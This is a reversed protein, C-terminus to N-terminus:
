THAIFVHVNHDSILGSIFSASFLMSLESRGFAGSILWPDKQGAIWDHLFDHPHLNLRLLSLNSFHQDGLEKILSEEPFPEQDNVALYTLTAPTACLEPFLYAFQKIAFISAPSGDYTLILSGPLMAKEPLM